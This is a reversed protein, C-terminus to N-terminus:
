LCLSHYLSNKYCSDSTFDRTMIAKLSLSHFAQSNTSATASIQIVTVLIIGAETDMCSKAMKANAVHPPYVPCSLTLTSQMSFALLLRLMAM